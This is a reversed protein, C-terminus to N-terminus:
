KKKADPLTKLFNNIKEARIKNNTEMGDRIKQYQRFTSFLDKENFEPWFKPHFCIVCSNGNAQWPLFNSTRREDGTRILLDVDPVIEDSFPFLYKSIFKDSVLNGINEAGARDSNNNSGCSGSNNNIRGRESGNRKEFFAEPKQVIKLFAQAIDQRGGYAVAVNLYMKNNGKTKEELELFSSKIKEPLHSADGIMRIKINKSIHADASLDFITKELLEFINDVENKDRKFNETSFAYITVHEVGSLYAGHLIKDITRTGMRHGWAPKKKNKKAFRRNGDMIFAIHKPAPVKKQIFYRRASKEYFFHGSDFPEEAKKKQYFNQFVSCM